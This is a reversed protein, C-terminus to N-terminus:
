RQPQDCRVAPANGPGPLRPVPPPPSVLDEWLIYDIPGTYAALIAKFYEIWRPDMIALEPPIGGLGYADVFAKFDEPFVVGLETEAETWSRTPPVVLSPPMVDQLKALSESWSM